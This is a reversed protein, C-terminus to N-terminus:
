GFKRGIGLLGLAGLLLWGASPLPVAAITLQPQTTAFPVNTVALNDIAVAGCTNSFTSVCNDVYASALMEIDLRDVVWGLSLYGTSNVTAATLSLSDTLVGSQYGRVEFFPLNLNTTRAIGYMEFGVAGFLADSYISQMSNFGNDGVMLNASCNNYLFKNRDRWYLGQEFGEETAANCDANQDFTITAACAPFVFLINIIILLFKM